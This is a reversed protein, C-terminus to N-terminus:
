MAFFLIAASQALPKSPVKSEADVCLVVSTFSSSPAKPAVCLVPVVVAVVAFESSSEPAVKM